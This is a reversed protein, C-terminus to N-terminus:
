LVQTQLTTAYSPICIETCYSTCLSFGYMRTYCVLLLLTCMISQYGSRLIATNSIHASERIMVDSTRATPLLLLSPPTLMLLLLSLVLTSATYTKGPSDIFTLMRCIEFPGYLIVNGDLAFRLMAQVSDVDRANDTAILLQTRM